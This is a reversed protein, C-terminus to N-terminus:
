TFLGAWAILAGQLPLRAWLIWSPLGSPKLNLSSTAMYINAPFVAILLAILGWAAFSRSRPILLGFGGVIEFAGSVAVLVNKWPFFPPIIKIYNEPLIFHMLGAGIMLLALTWLVAKKISTM